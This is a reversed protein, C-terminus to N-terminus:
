AETRSLAASSATATSRQGQRLLLEDIVDVFANVKDAFVGFAIARFSESGAVLGQFVQSPLVLVEVDGDAIGQAQYRTASVLCATTVVCSEGPGITYLPTPPQDSSARHEVRLRGKLILLFGRCLDGPRFLTQGNAVAIRKGNWALSTKLQEPWAPMLNALIIQTEDSCQACGTVPAVGDGRAARRQNFGIRLVLLITVAQVLLALGSLTWYALDFKGILGVNVLGQNVFFHLMVAMAVGPCILVWSGPSIERGFVYRRFYGQRRLVAWGLMLFSIQASLLALMLDFHHIATAQDGFHVEAGHGLRVLAITLVTLIPVGIWLTPATEANAGTELMSRLGLVMKAAGLLVAAVIFFTSLVYGLGAIWPTVSMAAPASLGVGVMVLAFAPLMQAFSNNRGCDFGGQTLVRGYFDGLLSLAWIGVLLFAAIAAPFLWEVVSWLGPVFVMGLVFGVNITMAVTLPLALLQTESNGTRLLRAADTGRYRAFRVLNWGLLGLHLLAFIVIGAVAVAIASQLPTTGNTVAVIIDEFVPVPRDPHPVWFLLWVYFNAALGGAGLAALFYLPSYQEDSALPTRAAM